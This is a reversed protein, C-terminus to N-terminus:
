FFNIRLLRITDLALRREGGRGPNCWLSKFPGLELRARSMVLIRRGDGAAAPSYGLSDLTSQQGLVKKDACQSSYRSALSKAATFDAPRVAAPMLAMMAKTLERKPSGNYTPSEKMCTEVDGTPKLRWRPPYSNSNPYKFSDRDEVCLDRSLRKIKWKSPLHHQEHPIILSVDKDHTQM